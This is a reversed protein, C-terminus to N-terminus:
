FRSFHLKPILNLPTRKSATMGSAESMDLEIEGQPLKWDFWYLLNAVVYEVIVIGFSMGPCGRRGAGFPIFEFDQGKFDIPNNLFREPIFDDPNEWSKVDTQIASVNILVRTKAPLHYGNLNTSTSSEAPILPGPAHLRLAEKVVSKLYDMHPIDEEDVKSKNAVVRRVKEQVKEMVKPNKVLEAIVWEITTSVSETGGIFMNLILAKINERTLKIDLINDTQVRLLLDVFDEKHDDNQQRRRSLHEDIIPDLFSDLERSVKKMRRVLGSVVDVWGLWPFFDRFCFAGLLRMLERSLEGFNKDTGHENGGGECKRGIACRSVINNNLTLLIESLNIPLQLLCSRSISEIMLAVEEERIFKFSQVRKISLLELVCIKRVQRWYHGYPSFAMDARGYFLLEAATMFPKNAFTVDHTKKIERAMDASSVVITPVSGMHLLMTPGYRRSLDRLSRHPHTGLQHLNGIIPLKPPSPPLKPKHQQPKSNTTTSDM